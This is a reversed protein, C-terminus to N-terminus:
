DMWGGLVQKSVSIISKIHGSSTFSHDIINGSGEEGILIMHFNNNVTLLNMHKFANILFIM